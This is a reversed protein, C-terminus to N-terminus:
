TRKREERFFGRKVFRAFDEKRSCLQNKQWLNERKTFM